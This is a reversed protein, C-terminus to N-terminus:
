LWPRIFFVEVFVHIFIGNNGKIVLKEGLFLDQLVYLPLSAAGLFKLSCKRVFKLVSGVFVKRRLYQIFKLTWGLYQFRALDVGSDVGKFIAVDEVFGNQGFFNELQFMVFGQIFVKALLILIILFGILEAVSQKVM